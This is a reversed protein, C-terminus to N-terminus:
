IIINQIDIFQEKELNNKILKNNNNYFMVRIVPYIVKKVLRCQIAPISRKLEKALIDYNYNTLYENILKNDEEETWKMRHRTAM